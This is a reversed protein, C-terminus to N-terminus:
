RHEFNAIFVDSLRRYQTNWICFFPIFVFLFATKTQRIKELMRKSTIQQLHM